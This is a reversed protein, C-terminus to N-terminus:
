HYWFPNIQIGEIDRPRERARIVLEDRTAKEAFRLEADTAFQLSREVGSRTAGAVSHVLLENDVARQYLTRRRQERLRALRRADAADIEDRLARDRLGQGQGIRDLIAREDNGRLRALKPGYDEDDLIRQLRRIANRQSASAM